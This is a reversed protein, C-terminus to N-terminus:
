AYMAQSGLVKKINGKASSSHQSDETREREHEPKWEGALSWTVPYRLTVNWVSM